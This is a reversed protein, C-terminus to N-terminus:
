VLDEQIIHKTNQIVHYWVKQLKDCGFYVFFEMGPRCHAFVMGASKAGAHRRAPTGPGSAALSKNKSRDM